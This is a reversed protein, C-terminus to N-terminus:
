DESKSSIHKLDSVMTMIVVVVSGVMGVGFMIELIRAIIFLM